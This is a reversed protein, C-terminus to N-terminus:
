RRKCAIKCAGTKCHVCFFSLELFELGRRKRKFGFWSRCSVSFLHFKHHAKLSYMDFYDTCHLMFSGDMPRREEILQNENFFIELNQNLHLVGLNWCLDIRRNMAIVVEGLEVQVVLFFWIQFQSSTHSDVHLEPHFVVLNNSKEEILWCRGNM